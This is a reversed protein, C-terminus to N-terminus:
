EIMSHILRAHPPTGSRSTTLSIFQQSSERLCALTTYDSPNISMTRALCFGPTQHGSPLLTVAGGLRGDRKGATGRALFMLRARTTLAFAFAFSDWRWGEAVDRDQSGFGGAKLGENWV